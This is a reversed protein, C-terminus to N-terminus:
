RKRSVEDRGNDDPHKGKLQTLNFLKRVWKPLDSNM